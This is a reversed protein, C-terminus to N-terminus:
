RRFEQIWEEGGQRFSIENTGIRTITAGDISGGERVTRSNIVALRNEPISDWAIAQIQLNSDAAQKVPVSQNSSKKSISPKNEPAAYEEEVQEPM